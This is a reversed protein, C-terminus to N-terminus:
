KSLIYGIFSNNINSMLKKSGVNLILGRGSFSRSFDTITFGTTIRIKM